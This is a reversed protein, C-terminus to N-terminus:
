ELLGRGRAIALAGCGALDSLEAATPTEIAGFGGLSRALLRYATQMLPKGCVVLRQPAVGAVAGHHACALLDHVLVAGILFSFRARADASGFLEVVRTSFAARNLGENRSLHAGALLAYDDLADPWGDRLGSALVTHHALVDILEGSLTSLCADIRDTADVSVFKAHSGPFLAVFPAKLRLREILGITETEEGRMMDMTGATDLAVPAKDMRIGPVFWVDFPALAPLAARTMGQALEAIGAPALAHPVELLGLGSTVMGSAVCVHVADAQAKCAALTAGLAQRLGGTLADKNGTIATDRVGVAAASGAVVTGDRWARVRSNSTGCDITIALSATL